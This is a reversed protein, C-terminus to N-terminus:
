GRGALGEADCADGLRNRLAAHVLHTASHNARIADRRAADIDLKVTDGVKITGSQVVAQHAHLRGLPKATDSVALTLATGSITGADGSQGGSEGYFPTQNVIVAVSDGTSASQVEAGDKVLALM